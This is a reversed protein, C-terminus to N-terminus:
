SEAIVNAPPLRKHLTIDAESIMPFEALLTEGIVQAMREITRFRRGTAAEIAMKSAAAYDVTDAVDDTEHARGHVLLDVDLLYRHGIEQEADPVGSYAYFELGEVLVRYM